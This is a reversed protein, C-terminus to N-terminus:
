WSLCSGHGGVFCGAAPLEGSEGADPAVEVLLGDVFVEFGCAVECWGFEFGGDVLHDPFAACAGGGSVDAVDDVGGWWFCWWGGAAGDVECWVVLLGSGVADAGVDVVFDLACAVGAVGGGEVVEEVVVEVGCFVVGDM